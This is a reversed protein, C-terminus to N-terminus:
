LYTIVFRYFQEYITVNNKIPMCVHAIIKGSYGDVGCVHTLGFMVLKENQDIHLKQGFYDARYPTPNLLRHTQTQRRIHYGPSVRQLSRGVRGEAVHFGESALLGTM